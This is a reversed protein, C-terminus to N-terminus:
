VIKRILSYIREVDSSNYRHDIPLFVSSNMLDNEFENRPTLNRWFRPTFVRSEILSERLFCGNEIILPYVLPVQDGLDFHLENATLVEGFARFNERRRTAILDHDAARIFASTLASMQRLAPVELSKEAALYDQRSSEPENGVRKLLYHFRYLSAEEDSQETPLAVETEIFGGDPVPIFKRPSYINALCPFAPQFYAQSNDVVVAEPPLVELQERVVEECLGFYNVLIVLDGSRVDIKQSARFGNELEYTEVIFGARSIVDPIADCIYNPVHVRKPRVTVVLAYLCSRASEYGYRGKSLFSYENVLASFHGGISMKRFEEDRTPVM